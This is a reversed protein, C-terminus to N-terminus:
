LACVKCQVNTIVAGSTPAEIIIQLKSLRNVQVYNYM